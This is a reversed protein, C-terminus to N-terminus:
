ERCITIRNKADAQRLRAFQILLRPHYEALFKDDLVSLWEYKCYEPSLSACVGPTPAFPRSVRQGPNAAYRGLLIIFGIGAHSLRATVDPPLCM